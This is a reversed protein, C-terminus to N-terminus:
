NDAIRNVVSGASAVANDWRNVLFVATKSQEIGESRSSILVHLIAFNRQEAKVEIM